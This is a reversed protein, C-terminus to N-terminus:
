PKTISSSSSATNTRSKSRPQKTSKVHPRLFHSKLVSRDSAICQIMDRWHEGEAGTSQSSFELKGITHHGFKHILPGKKHILPGKKQILPGKKQILPGKKQILPGKKQILPGKNQIFWREKPYPFREKPYVEKSKSLGGKKQILPGKKQILPGKKQILPGKKQIFWRERKASLVSKFNTHEATVKVKIENLIELPVNLNVKYDFVPNYGKVSVSTHNHVNESMQFGDKMEELTRGEFSLSSM